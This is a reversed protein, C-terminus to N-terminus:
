MGGIPMTGLPLSKNNDSEPESQWFSAQMSFLALFYITRTVCFVLISSFIFIYIYIYLLLIDIQSLSARSFFLIINEKELIISQIM